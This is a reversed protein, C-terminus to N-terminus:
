TVQIGNLEIIQKCTAPEVFDHSIVNVFKSPHEHSKACMDRLTGIFHPLNVHAGGTYPEEVGTDGWLGLRKKQTTNKEVTAHHISGGPTTQQYYVFHLHDPNHDAHTRAAALAADVVVKIKSKNAYTGCTTLGQGVAGGDDFKSFRHLGLNPDLGTHLGDFIMVLKGRLNGVTETAINTPSRYIFRAWDGENVGKYKEYWYKMVVPLQEPWGSHSFRMILFENQNEHLFRIAGRISEKLSGGYAGGVGGHGSPDGREQSFHGFRLRKAPYAPISEAFATRQEPTMFSGSIKQTIKQAKKDQHGQNLEPSIAPCFVRCDFFRSGSNAQDYIEANQCVAWSEKVGLNLEVNTQAVGADHSGPMVIGWVATNGPIASMWDKVSPM